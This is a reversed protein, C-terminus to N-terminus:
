PPYRIEGLVGAFLTIPSAFRFCCVFCHHFMCEVGVRLAIDLVVISYAPFRFQKDLVIQTAGGSDLKIDLQREDSPINEVTEVQELSDVNKEIYVSSKESLLSDLKHSSKDLKHCLSDIKHCIRQSMCNLKVALRVFDSHSM